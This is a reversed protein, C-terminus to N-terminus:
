CCTTIEEIQARAWADVSFLQELTPNPDFTHHEVTRRCSPVIDCFRMKGTLFAAVAAENAASLVAGTTGGTRAAELGLRLADFRDLDAPEFDLSFAQSWDLKETPSDYREPWTLALQIPLRMDPPSLQAVISGDQFEVFSHVVSQPHIVVEIQDPSLDFLWRAEIIELAKNMMTASDVTIKPGMDWTPHALAQECTVSELDSLSHGRFPGGSATLVIRKVDETRGASLAQFIASHESDVPLITAGRERALEILLPGAMVLSEKNALAVRKGASVAEWTSRVGASGVMAAVVVDVEPHSVVEAIGEKGILVQSEPPLAGWDMGRAFDADTAVIWRPRHQWAQEVLRALNRHASVAAVRARSGMHAVVDLTSRGISGTSGLVVVNIPRQSMPTSRQLEGVNKSV